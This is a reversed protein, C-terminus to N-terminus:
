YLMKQIKLGFNLNLSSCIALAIKIKIGDIKLRM